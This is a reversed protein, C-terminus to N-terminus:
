SSQRTQQNWYGGKYSILEYAHALSGFRRRYTFASPTGKSREILQTSLRGHRRLVNRLAQLVQDDSLTNGRGSEYGILQYARSLSGFRREYVGAHPMRKCKNVIRRSLRGKRRLLGRLAVLLENDSLRYPPGPRPKAGVLKRIERVGGFVTHLERISPLGSTEEILRQDLFGHKHALRRIAELVEERPYPKLRACFIEQAADFQSREVFPAFRWKRRVWEEPHNPRKLGGLKASTRNWVIDGVYIENRLLWHIRAYTWPRALGSSIGEDNLEAAIVSEPKHETVFASFIRRM